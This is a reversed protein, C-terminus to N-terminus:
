KKAKGGIVKLLTNNKLNDRIAEVTDTKIKVNVRSTGTTTQTIYGEPLGAAIEGAMDELVTKMEESRLIDGIPGENHGYFIWEWKKSM